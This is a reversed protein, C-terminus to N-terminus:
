VNKQNILIWTSNDAAIASRSIVIRGYHLLIEKRVVLNRFLIEILYHWSNHLNGARMIIPLVIKVKWLANVGSAMRENSYTQLSLDSVTFCYASHFTGIQHEFAFTRNRNPLALHATLGVSMKRKENLERTSERDRSRSVVSQILVCECECVNSSLM